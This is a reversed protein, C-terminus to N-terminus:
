EFCYHSLQTPPKKTRKESKTFYFIVTLSFTLKVSWAVPARSGSQELYVIFQFFSLLTVTQECSTM